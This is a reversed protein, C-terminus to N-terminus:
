VLLIHSIIQMQVQLFQAGAKAEGSRSMSGWWLVGYSEEIEAVLHLLYRLSVLKVTPGNTGM